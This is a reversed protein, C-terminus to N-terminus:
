RKKLELGSIQGYEPSDAGFLSKVYKKVLGAIEVVGTDDAYLEENRALRDNSLNTVDAIVANNAAVMAAHKAELQAIQLEAENPTYTPYLKFLEILANFFEATNTYSRQSVSNGENENEPTNPDDPPLAKARAGDIKRKIARADAVDNEKIGASSEFANIARTGLKRVGSYVTERM